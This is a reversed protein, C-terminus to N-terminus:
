WLSPEKKREAASVIKFGWGSAQFREIEVLDGPELSFLKAVLSLADLHDKTLYTPKPRKKHLPKGQSRGHIPYLVHHVLPRSVGLERAIDSYSKGQLDSGYQALIIRSKDRKDMYTSANYRDNLLQLTLM